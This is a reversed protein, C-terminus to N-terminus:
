RFESMDATYARERMITYHESTLDPSSLIGARERLARIVYEPNLFSSQDASLVCSIRLMDGDCVVKASRILPRVDVTQEGSKTKKQVELTPANLIEECKEALEASAGETTVTLTYSLWKMDTLPTDPYYAETVQMEETMNANLRAKAVEPDIRDRLRLDM